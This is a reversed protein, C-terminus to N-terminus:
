EKSSLLDTGIEAMELSEINIEPEKVKQVEIITEGVDAMSFASTDIVPKPIKESKIIIVGPPALLDDGTELLDTDSVTKNETSDPESVTEAPETKNVVECQAGCKFLAAYYKDAVSKELDDKIVVRSGSFLKDIADVSTKFLAAVKVKTEELGCGEVLEGKFVVQYKANM